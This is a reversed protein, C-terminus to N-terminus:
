HPHADEVIDIASSRSVQVQAHGGIETDVRQERSIIHRLSHGAISSSDSTTSSSLGITPTQPATHLDTLAVDGSSADDAGRDENAGVTM